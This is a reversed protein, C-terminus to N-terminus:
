KERCVRVRADSTGDSIRNNRDARLQSPREHSDARASMCDPGSARIAARSIPGARTGGPGEAPDLTWGHLRWGLALLWTRPPLLGCADLSRRPALCRLSWADFAIASSHPDLWRVDIRRGDAAAHKRYNHLVYSLGRRVELPTRLARAHYRDDFLRGKRSLVRNLHIALRTGLGRMGQTLGREGEAEVLLHVHDDLVAFQTVRLGFRGRAARFVMVITRTVRRTRLSPVDGRMRLTVHIPHNRDVTPRTRHPVRARARARRRRRKRRRLQLELQVGKRRRRRAARQARDPDIRKM